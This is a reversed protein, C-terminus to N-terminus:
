ESLATKEQSIQEALRFFFSQSVAGDYLSIAEGDVKGNFNSPTQYDHGEFERGEIRLEVFCQGGFDYLNFFSGNGLGAFYCCRDNDYLNVGEPKVSGEMGIYKSQSYDYIFSANRGSILRAAVFAVCARLKTDM